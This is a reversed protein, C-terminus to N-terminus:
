PHHLDAQKFEDPWVIVKKGDIYQVVFNTYYGKAVVPDPVTDLMYKYAPQTAGGTYIFKGTQIQEQGFKYLTESNLEGYQEHTAEAVEIFFNAADYAAGSSMPSPTINWRAEFERAFVRGEATVWDPIQDLLYNSSDGLLEYWNGSWGVGNAIVLPKVDISKLQKLFAVRSNDGTIAVCILDIEEKKLPDLITQFDTRDLAFYDEVAITWGVNKLDKRFASGISHGFDSDEMYIAVRKGTPQWLGDAIASEIVTVYNAIRYKNPAPMLKFNWYSYKEPNTNVKQNVLESSGVTFFHPIKYEATIEMVGVAVSSHWNWLGAQIKDDTVAKRYAIAAENPESKSDIWVLEVKYDAIQYDISEFAMIIANKSLEGTLASPGTFPGMVGIKLVKEETTTIPEPTQGLSCSTVLLLLLALLYYLFFKTGITRM